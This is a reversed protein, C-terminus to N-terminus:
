EFYTRGPKKKRRRIRIHIWVVIAVATASAGWLPWKSWVLLVLLFRLLVWGIPVM